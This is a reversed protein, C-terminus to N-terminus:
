SAPTATSDSTERSPPTTDVFYIDNRDFTISAQGDLQADTASIMVREMQTLDFLTRAICACAVTLDIGLLQAFESSMELIITNATTAYRTVRVHTPFPSRLADSAPGKLYQNLLGEMDAEYGAGEREEPLLIESEGDYSVEKALYYFNVPSKAPRMDQTCGCLSLLISIILLLSIWYKM